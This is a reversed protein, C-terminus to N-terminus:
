LLHQSPSSLHACPPRTDPGRHVSGETGQGLGMVPLGLQVTGVECGSHHGPLSETGLNRPPPPSLLGSGLCCGMCVAFAQSPSMGGRVPWPRLVPTRSAVVKTRRNTQRYAAKTGQGLPAGLSTSSVLM